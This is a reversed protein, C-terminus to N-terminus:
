SADVARRAVVHFWDVRSLDEGDALPRAGVSGFVLPDRQFGAEALEELERELTTYHMLVSYHHASLPAVAYGPGHEVAGRLSVWHAFDVPAGAVQSVVSWAARLPNRTPWIRIKWPRERFSPGLLNLTSFYFIGGPALVRRVSALVQRRDAPSMADIGAYPFTVLGYHANPYGALTRADGLDVRAEPHRARSLAVMAPSFDLARYDYSLPRLMAITRGTGVGLDLIPAGRVDGRVRQMAAREGPDTYSPVRDLDKQSSRKSWTKRNQASQELRAM